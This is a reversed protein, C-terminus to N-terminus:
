DHAPEAQALRPGTLIDTLTAPMTLMAFQGTPLERVDWGAGRLMAALALLPDTPPKGTCIVFTRPVAAPEADAAAVVQQYSALPHAGRRALMEVVHEVSV